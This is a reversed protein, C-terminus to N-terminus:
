LLLATATDALSSVMAVILVNAAPDFSSFFNALDEATLVNFSIAAVEALLEEASLPISIAGFDTLHSCNCHLFGDPAGSPPPSAECGATSWETQDWYQCSVERSCDNEFYGTDCECLGHVCVGHRSCFNFDRCDGEKYTM